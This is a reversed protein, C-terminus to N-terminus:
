PAVGDGWTNTPREETRQTDNLHRAMDRASKRSDSFYVREGPRMPTASRMATM